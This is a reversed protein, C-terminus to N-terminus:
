AITCKYSLRKGIISDLQVEIFMFESRDYKMFESRDVRIFYNAQNALLQNVKFYLLYKEINELNLM